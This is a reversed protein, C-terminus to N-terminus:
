RVAPMLPQSFGVGVKSVKCFYRKLRGPCFLLFGGAKGLGDRHRPETIKKSQNKIRIKKRFGGKVIGGLAGLAGLACNIVLILM